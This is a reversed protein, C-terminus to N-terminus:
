RCVCVRVHECEFVWMVEWQYICECRIFALVCYVCEWRGLCIRVSGVYM